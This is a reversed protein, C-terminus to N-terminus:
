VARRERDSQSKSIVRTSFHFILEMHKRRHALFPSFLSFCNKQPKTNKINDPKPHEPQFQRLSHHAQHFWVLVSGLHIKMVVVRAWIQSYHSHTQSKEFIDDGLCSQYNNLNQAFFLENSSKSTINADQTTLNLLTAHSLCEQPNRKICWVEIKTQSELLFSRCHRICSTVVESVRCKKIKTRCIICGTVSLNLSRIRPFSCRETVKSSICDLPFLLHVHFITKWLFVINLHSPLAEHVFSDVKSHLLLASFCNEEIKRTHLMQGHHSGVNVPSSCFTM